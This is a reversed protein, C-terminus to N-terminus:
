LPNIEFAVRGCMTVDSYPVVGAARMNFVFGSELYPSLDYRAVVDLAIVTDTKPAPGRWSAILVTPLTSTPDKPQMYVDIGELFTLDYKGGETFATPTLELELSLLALSGPRISTPIDVDVPPVADTALSAGEHHGYPNGPVTFENVEAEVPFALMDGCGTATIFLCATLLSRM